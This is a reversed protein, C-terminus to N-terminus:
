LSPFAQEFTAVSLISVTWRDSTHSSTYDVAFFFVPVRRGSKATQGVVLLITDFINHALDSHGIRPVAIIWPDACQPAKAGTHSGRASVMRTWVAFRVSCVPRHLTSSLPARRLWARSLPASVADGFGDGLLRRCIRRCRVLPLAGLEPIHRWARPPPHPRFVFVHSSLQSSTTAVTCVLPNTMCLDHGYFWDPLRPAQM